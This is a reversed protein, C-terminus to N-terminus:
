HRREIPPPIMDDQKDDHEDKPPKVMQCLLTGAVWADCTNDLIKVCAAYHDECCIGGTLLVHSYCGAVILLDQDDPDM